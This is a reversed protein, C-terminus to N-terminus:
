RAKEGKDGLEPPWFDFFNYWQFPAARCERELRSAYRRVHETIADRRRGRPLDVRDAFPELALTWGGDDKRRCFLLYVPCDLLAALLWPGQSFEAAEGLFPARCVRGRSLVPVRDGAMAIWEGAEIRERLLIATDPGIETVQLMRAAAEGRHAELLRNYNEAHRTHVLVTLRRRLAPDMLAHSLEANGHHSVVLLAGRPDAAARAVFGDAELMRPPIARSWAAFADLARGAFDMFHRFGEALTPPRNLVRGLYARSARRQETGTLFFYLVIPTMVWACGRRGLLRYAGAVFALGWAGGREALQAWHRGGGPPRHRLIEPLRWLLNLVLRTHMRSIRVNDALMRFNSTNGEPYTVRVPVMVPPVGRWFLRVMIETDFDMGRGITESGALALCPELPYVRFGCMSDGIRFSLTEVFVWLHTIWRGIRRGPPISADYLPKGSVVAGPQAEAAALLRPLAALDHQGDADVQVAHSFGAAAALRFGDLVAAGKGGNAPRRAVTVGDGPAHLAAIASRAPEASGDDVIFVPLGFDRLRGVVGPLATWHNHSPVIACVKM